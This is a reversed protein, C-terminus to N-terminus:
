GLAKLAEARTEHIELETDFQLLKLVSSVTHNMGYLLMKKGSEKLLENLSIFYGAGKSSLRELNTMDFIISTLRKELQHQIPGSLDTLSRDDIVGHLEILLTEKGKVEYM